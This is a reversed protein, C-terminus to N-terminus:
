SAETRRTSPLVLTFTSGKGPESELEVSGGHAEAIRRAVFLGLGVGPITSTGSARRFPEFIRPRESEAVGIGQDTVSLRASGHSEVLRLCVEGGRPSYKIANSVLNNLLQQLRVSDCLVEVDGDPAEFSLRHESSTSEFLQVVERALAELSCRQLTLAFQGAELRATDLFDGLLRELHTVQRGFISFLRRLKPEEPLPRDPSVLETATRMAGLPNRLDHATAALFALQTERQRVLTDALANFRAAMERLEEPGVEAARAGREGGAFRAMANGLSIVPRFAVGNLWFLVLGVMVIFATAGIAAWSTARIYWDDARERAERAENVNIEVFADAALFAEELAQEREEEGVRARASKLYREVRAETVALAEAELQSDVFKRSDALTRRIQDELEARGLPDRARAHLLLAVQAEEALRLSEVSSALTSTATRLNGAFLGFWGLGALMLTALVALVVTLLTRLKL